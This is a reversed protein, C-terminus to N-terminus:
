KKRLAVIKAKGADQLQTVEFVSLSTDKLATNLTASCEQVSQSLALQDLYAALLSTPPADQSVPSRVFGDASITPAPVDQRLKEQIAKAQEYTESM